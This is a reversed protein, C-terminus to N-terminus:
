GRRSKASESIIGERRKSCLPLQTSGLESARKSKEVIATKQRKM